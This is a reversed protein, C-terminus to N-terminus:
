FYYDGEEMGFLAKDFISIESSTLSFTASVLNILPSYVDSSIKTFSTNTFNILGNSM